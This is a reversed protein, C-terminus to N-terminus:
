SIIPTNTKSTLPHRTSLLLCDRMNEVQENQPGYLYPTPAATQQLDICKVNNRFTLRNPNRGMKNYRQRVLSSLAALVTTKEEKKAFIGLSFPSKVESMPFFVESM